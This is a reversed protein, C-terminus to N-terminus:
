KKLSLFWKEHFTKQDGVSAVLDPSADDLIDILESAPSGPRTIYARRAGGMDRAMASPFVDLRAGACLLQAEMGELVLRLAKLAEFLDTAEFERREIGAGSFILRWPPPKPVEVICPETRGDAFRITLKRVTM